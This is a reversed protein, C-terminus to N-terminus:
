TRTAEPDQLMHTATQLGYWHRPYDYSSPRVINLDVKIFSHM